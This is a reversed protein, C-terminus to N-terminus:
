DQRSCTVAKRWLPGSRCSKCWLLLCSDQLRKKTFSKVRVLLSVDRKFTNKNVVNGKGVTPCTHFISRWWCRDLTASGYFFLLCVRLIVGKWLSIIHGNRHNNPVIVITESWLDKAPSYVGFSWSSSVQKGVVLGNVYVRIATVFCALCFRGRVPWRCDAILERVAYGSAIMLRTIKHTATAPAAPNSSLNLTDSSISVFPTTTSIGWFSSM